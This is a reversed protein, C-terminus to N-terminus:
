KQKKFVVILLGVLLLGFLGFLAVDTINSNTKKVAVKKKSSNNVKEIVASKRASHKEVFDTKNKDFEKKNEEAQKKQDATLDVEIAARIDKQMADSYGQFCKEGVIIVPVGGNDYECKKLTDFFEQRNQEMMVNVETVKMTDYEYIAENEFFDRAHHCHPCTPSYYITVDAANAVSILGMFLFAFKLIKM